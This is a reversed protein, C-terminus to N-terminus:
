HQGRCICSRLIIFDDGPGVQFEDLVVAGMQCAIEIQRLSHVLSRHDNGGM